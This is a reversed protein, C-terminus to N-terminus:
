RLLCLLTTGSSPLALRGALRAGLEGGLMM